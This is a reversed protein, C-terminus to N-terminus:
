RWTNEGENFWGLKRLLLYVPSSREFGNPIVWREFRNEYLNLEKLNGLLVFDLPISGELQNASLDLAELRKLKGLEPPLRGELWNASLDLVRLRKLRGLEPPITGELENNALNLVTLKRCRSLQPTVNGSLKNWSLHLETLNYCLWLEPPISGTLKSTSFNIYTVFSMCGVSRPLPRGLPNAGRWDLRLLSSCRWDSYIDGIVDPWLFWLKDFEDPSTMRNLRCFRTLNLLIFAPDTLCTFVAKCLRVYKFCYRPHIWSFIAQVARRDLAIQSSTSEPM